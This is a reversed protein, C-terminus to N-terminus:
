EACCTRSFLCCNEPPPPRPCCLSHKGCSWWNTGTKHQFKYYVSSGHINVPFTKYYTPGPFQGCQQVISCNQAYSVIHGSLQGSFYWSAIPWTVCWHVRWFGHSLIQLLNKSYIIQLIKRQQISDISSLTLNLKLTWTHNQRETILFIETPSNYLGRSSQGRTPKGAFQRTLRSGQQLISYNRTHKVSTRNHAPFQAAPATQSAATRFSSDPPSPRLRFSAPATQPRELSGWCTGSAAQVPPRIYKQPSSSNPKQCINVASWVAPLSLCAFAYLLHITGSAAYWLKLPAPWTVSRAPMHGVPWLSLRCGCASRHGNVLGAMCLRTQQKTTEVGMIWTIAHIVVWKGVGFPHFASNAQNTSGYRVSYGRLPWMDAMSWAYILSLGGALSRRGFWQTM